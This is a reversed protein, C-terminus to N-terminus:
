NKMKRGKYTMYKSIREILVVCGTLVLFRVIRRLIVATRISIPLSFRQFTNINQICLDANEFGYDYWHMYEKTSILLVYMVVFCVFVFCMKDISMRRRGYATADIMVNAQYTNEVRWVNFFLMVSATILIIIYTFIEKQFSKGFYNRYAIDDMVYVEYGKEQMREAYNYRQKIININTELLDYARDTPDIQELRREYGEIIVGVEELSKRQCEAYMNTLQTSLNKYPYQVLSFTMGSVGAVTLLILIGRRWILQKQWEVLRVPIATSLRAYVDLEAMCESMKKERFPKKKSNYLLSFGIFVPLLTVSLCDLVTRKEVIIGFISYLKYETLWNGIDALYFLNIEKLIEWTSNSQIVYFLVGEIGMIILDVLIGITRNSTLCLIVWLLMVMVNASIIKIGIFYMIFQGVNMQLTFQEFLELSQISINLPITGAMRWNIVFMGVYYVITAATIYGILIFIRKIALAMRANAGSHILWWLGRKREDMFSFVISIGIAFLIYTGNGYEYVNTIAADNCDTVKVEKLKTFDAITRKVKRKEKESRIRKLLIDGRQITEELYNGYEVSRDPEIVQSGNGMDFIVMEDRTKKEQQIFTNVFTGWGLILFFFTAFIVRKNLM